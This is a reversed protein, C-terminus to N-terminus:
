LTHFSQLQQIHSSFGFASIRKIPSTFLAIQTAIHGQDQPLHPVMKESQLIRPHSSDEKLWACEWHSLWESWSGPTVKIWHLDKAWCLQECAQQHRSTQSTVSYGLSGSTGTLFVHPCLATGQICIPLLHVCSPLHLYRLPGKARVTAM